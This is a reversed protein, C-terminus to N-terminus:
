RRSIPGRSWPSSVTSARPGCCASSLRSTPACACGASAPTRGACCVSWRASARDTSRPSAACTSWCPRRTPWAGASLGFSLPRARQRARRGVPVRHTRRARKGHRRLRGLVRDQPQPPHRCGVDLPVRWKGDQPRSRPSALEIRGNDTFTATVRRIRHGTRLLWRPPGRSPLIAGRHCPGAEVIRLPVPSRHEVLDEQPAEGVRAAVAAAVQPAQGLSEVVQVPQADVADPQQGEVGRRQAVAPVVDAVEEGDVRGVADQGVHDLQHVLGVLPADADHGVEHHVVGAVLVRPELLAALVARLGLASQYTQPSSSWRQDSARM